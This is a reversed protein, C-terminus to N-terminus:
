EALRFGAVDRGPRRGRWVASRGCPHDGPDSHWIGAHTASRRDSLYGAPLHTVAMATSVLGLIRGIELPDAGLQELYPAQFFLFMGEGIGWTMLSFIILILDRSM